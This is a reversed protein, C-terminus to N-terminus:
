LIPTSEFSKKKKKVIEVLHKIYDGRHTHKHTNIVPYQVTEFM